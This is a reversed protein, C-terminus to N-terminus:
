SEGKGSKAITSPRDGQLACPSWLRLGHDRDPESGLAPISAQSRMSESLVQAGPGRPEGGGEQCGM